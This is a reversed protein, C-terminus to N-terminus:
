GAGSPSSPTPSSLGGLFDTVHPPTATRSSTLRAGAREPRPLHLRHRTTAPLLWARITAPRM